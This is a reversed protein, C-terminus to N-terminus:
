LSLKQLARWRNVIQCFLDTTKEADYIASHAEDRDFAIDAADAARALVTQGYALGGLTATDFSSFAHFPNKQELGCRKIAAKLFLLDFWANHGVLIARQCHTAELAARVHTFINELAEAEDIAFRFPHNPDIKNLKLAKPDLHSGPFPDVHYAHTKDRHLVGQKDMTVFVIAIELLADTEPELGGTEVDVVVPLFGRFRKKLTTQASFNHKNM